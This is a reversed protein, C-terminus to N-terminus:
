AVAAVTRLPIGGDGRAGRQEQLIHRSLTDLFWGVDQLDEPWRLYRRQRVFGGIAPHRRLQYQSLSGVVVLVLAGDLHSACRSRAAAFAELCWGDRLFHRSVLCVVKRSSWVADQINAIHERGPVFDREEFCLNLRNRSSYQADLHRLLARQVWEFDRGSFCLYADYQYADPAGDEAPGAPLLRRAAKYCLFCLGRLKAAVLVALLFLTVGVTSFIFLSFTLTRLAEEDDCGEMSVSSLPTGALLSPYACRVDARSGFVTVNTRNLWRVLPRLECGCIFKNHTLDVARLPALLGPDLSLLQNRSVDLVELAAPLDGRSLTSLRNASLDLGRLATLDRLLGPPLAALYNHNLHLVRLRPLGRFVDWCRGTEWALQLMNSGLFLREPGVSGTPGHGGRCASLRNRNLILVQLAPVRLLSYLDGLDELRNDSLELFSATLDMHSVTELKNNGLFITDISPVFSVTKLANDRLDLTRLAGLFRFTQDQIIGIHNHQLDIYAVEALGSFDSDYLEGLLNHSLNLVQVSGLGHFAEGAIRNIKNHALDLLKLDGLVEFLRANLSFVFGHSLDLRLVSSGALGAFTSRDPDRINRFGFGQGMIHHALVLSSIQSGGIARTVNGTVDATWGNNSVDLTELVVNRFPNGCRGWDVPARSYLGNAALNLLSLAKGQLPRLGQECAAPIRNLSFDVSRLSGLERFSAHLELSGIQNKSLDLRLLAGLNRFYGDTLVVDSLGCAFLRLEQLHPLGQFADPHLFDVRSNGLDLTRLNPLNRFAERDVSFPTQQTGLELLQLRELLPFSARTVARIYNFSLLLIETTSPVPPVQSLNCSRYLARRGDAVCCSAAAVAGAVLLLGLTRGLQRGMIRRSPFVATCAWRWGPAWSPPGQVPVQRGGCTRGAPRASLATSPGQSVSVKLLTQKGDSLRSAHLAEPFIAPPPYQHRGRGTGPARGEAGQASWVRGPDARVRQDKPGGDAFRGAQRTLADGEWGRGLGTPALAARSLAGTMQVLAVRGSQACPAAPAPCVPWSPRVDQPLRCRGSHGPLGGIVRHCGPAGPICLFSAWRPPPPHLVPAGAAEGRVELAPVQCTSSGRCAREGGM